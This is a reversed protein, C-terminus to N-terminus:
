FESDWGEDFDDKKRNVGSTKLPGTSRKANKDNRVSQKLKEVEAKLQRNEYKRYPGVLDGVRRAEEWVEQPIEEAKVDPYEAIFRNVVDKSSDEKEQEAKQEEDKHNKQVRLLAEAETLTNGKEAEEDILWMAETLAIQEEVTVGAKDALKKLFAMGRGSESKLSDREQRVHDYDRGKQALETMEELTLEEENGLYTIKFRQNGTETEEGPKEAPEEPEESEEEPEDSEDDPQADEHEDETETDDELETAQIGDGSDEDFANDFADFGDDVEVENEINTNEDM